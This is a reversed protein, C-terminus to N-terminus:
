SAVADSEVPTITCGLAWPLAAIDSATAPIPGHLLSRAYVWPSRLERLVSRDVTSELRGDSTRAKITDTVALVPVAIRCGSRVAGVTAAILDPRVLPDVLNHVLVIECGEPLISDWTSRPVYPVDPPVSRRRSESGVLVFSDIVASHRLRNVQGMLSTVVGADALSDEDDVFSALITKDM